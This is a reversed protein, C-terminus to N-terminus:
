SPSGQALAVANPHRTAGGAFIGASTRRADRDGGGAIILGAEDLRQLARWAAAQSLGTQGAAGKATLHAIGGYDYGTTHARVGRDSCLVVAEFGVLCDRGAPVSLDM